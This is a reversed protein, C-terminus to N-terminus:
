AENDDDESVEDEEDGEDTEIRLVIPAYIEVGEPCDLSEMFLQVNEPFSIIVAGRRVTVYFVEEGEPTCVAVKGKGLKIRRMTMTITM